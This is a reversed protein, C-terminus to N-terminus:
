YRVLRYIQPRSCLSRGTVTSRGWTIYGFKSSGSGSWSLSVGTSTISQTAKNGGTFRMVGTEYRRGDAGAYGLRQMLHNGGGFGFGTDGTPGGELGEPCDGHGYVAGEPRWGTTFGSSGESGTGVEVEGSAFNFAQYFISWAAGTTAATDFRQYTYTFGDSTIGTITVSAVFAGDYVLNLVTGTGFYKVRAAFGGFSIGGVAVGWQSLDPGCAGYAMNAPGGFGVNFAWRFMLLTPEFALGSVTGGGSAPSAPITLGNITSGLPGGIAMVATLVDRPYQFSAQMAGCQPLFSMGVNEFNPAGVGPRFGPISVLSGTSGIPDDALIGVFDGYGAFVGNQNAGHGWGLGMATIYGIDNPTDDLVRQLAGWAFLMQPQKINSKWVASLTIGPDFGSDVLSDIDTMATAM